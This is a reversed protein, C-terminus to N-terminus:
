EVFSKQVHVDKKSLSAGEAALSGRGYAREIRRGAGASSKRGELTEENSTKKVKFNVFSKKKRKSVSHWIPRFSVVSDLIFSWDEQRERRFAPVAVVVEVENQFCEM